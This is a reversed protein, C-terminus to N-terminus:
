PLEFTKQLVPPCGSPDDFYCNPHARLTSIRWQDQAIECQLSATAEMTGGLYATATYDCYGNRYHRWAENAGHFLAMQFQGWHKRKAISAYLKALASDAHTLQQGLCTDLTADDTASNCNPPKALLLTNFALLCLGLAIPATIKM